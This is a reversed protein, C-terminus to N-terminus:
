IRKPKWHLVVNKPRGKLQLFINFHTDYCKCFGSLFISIWQLGWESHLRINLYLKHSCPAQGIYKGYRTNIQILLTEQV